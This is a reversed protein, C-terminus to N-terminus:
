INNFFDEYNFDKFYCGYISDKELNATGKQLLEYPISDYLEIIDYDFNMVIVYKYKMLEEDELHLDILIHNELGYRESLVNYRKKDYIYNLVNTGTKYNGYLTTKQKKNAKKIYKNKTKESIWYTKNLNNKFIELDSNKLFDQVVLLDDLLYNESFQVVKLKNNLICFLYSENLRTEDVYKEKSMLDYLKNIENNNKLFYYSNDNMKMNLHMHKVYESVPENLFDELLKSYDYYKKM